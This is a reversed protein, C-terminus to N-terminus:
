IYYFFDERMRILVFQKEFFFQIYDRGKVRGMMAVARGRWGVYVFLLRYWCESKVSAREPADARLYMMRM